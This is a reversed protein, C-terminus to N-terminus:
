EVSVRCAARHSPMKDLPVGEIFETIVARWLWLGDLCGWEVMGSGNPNKKREGMTFYGVHNDCISYGNHLPCKPTNVPDCANCSCRPINFSPMKNLPVGKIYENIVIRWDWRGDLCGWEIMGCGDPNNRRKGMTFYGVHNDCISHGNHLPCKPTNVPDCANCPIPGNYCRPMNSSPMKDLPVGKIFETIVVRWDWVGDLCGWEIMGYGNPNNRRRGMTFYGVHNDCISSGDHLPCKATNVPDCVNCSCRPINQRQHQCPCKRCNCCNCGCSNNSPGNTNSRKLYNM